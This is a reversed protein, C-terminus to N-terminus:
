SEVTETPSDVAWEGVAERLKIGKKLLKRTDLSEPEITRSIVVAAIVAVTLPLAMDWNRTLELVLAISTLPALTIAAFMAGMGALM